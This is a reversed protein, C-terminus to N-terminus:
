EEKMAKTMSNTSVNPRTLTMRPVADPACFRPTMPARPTPAYMASAPRHPLGIEPAEIFGALLAFWLTLVAIRSVGPSSAVSGHDSSM